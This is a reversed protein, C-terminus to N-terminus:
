LKAKYGSTEWFWGVNEAIQHNESTFDHDNGRGQEVGAYHDDPDSAHFADITLEYRGAGLKVPVAEAITEQLTGAEGSRNDGIHALSSMLKQTEPVVSKRMFSDTVIDFKGTEWALIDSAAQEISEKTIGLKIITTM